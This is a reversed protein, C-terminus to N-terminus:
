APLTRDRSPAFDVLGAGLARLRNLNDEYYFQFADDHAVGIRCRPRLEIKSEDPVSINELQPASRAIDLIANLDLCSAGPPLGPPAMQLSRKGASGTPGSITGLM